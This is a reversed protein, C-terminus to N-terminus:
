PLAPAGRPRVEDLASVLVNAAIRHAIENPHEDNAGDVVLVEWNLGRDAPLLDLVRAGAERGARVVEAHIPAFPHREDLPNGFLPFIVVLLGVQRERTLGVM